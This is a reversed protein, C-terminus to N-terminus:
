WVLRLGAGSFGPTTRSGGHGGLLRLGRVNRGAPRRPVFRAVADVMELAEYDGTHDPHPYDSAWFTRDAGYTKMMRPLTREDSRRLDVGPPPVTAPDGSRRRRGLPLHGDLRRRGTSGTASGDQARNWCCSSSNPSAIFTAFDFFTTFAQRVGDGTAAALLSLRHGNEFRPSRLEFPEFAPHIAIPVDLRVAKAFISRASIAAAQTWAFPVVFASPLWGEGRASSAAAAVPDGLSLHRDILRGEVEHCFDAIWRNHCPL